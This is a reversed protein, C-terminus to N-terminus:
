IKAKMAPGFFWEKLKERAALGASLDTCNVVSLRFGGPPMSQQGGPVDEYFCVQLSSIGPMARVERQLEPPPYKYSRGHPGFLIVSYSDVRASDEFNWGRGAYLDVAAQLWGKGNLDIWQNAFRLQAEIIKGGITEINICGTYGEFYKGLWGALYAELEPQAAAYMEWYDFMGAPLAWGKTHRWWVPKGRDLAVDTSIHDGSLLEMWFHGPSLGEDYDTQSAIIRSQWGMGSLNYIPKSFVPFEPPDIGHPACAIGQSEAVFLKNYVFNYKPFARYCASDNTPIVVDPPCAVDKFYQECWPEVDLFPMHFTM